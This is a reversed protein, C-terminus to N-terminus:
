IVGLKTGRTQNGTQKGFGNRQRVRATNIGGFPGIESRFYIASLKGNMEGYGGGEFFQSRESLIKM